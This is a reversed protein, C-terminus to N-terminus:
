KRLEAPLLRTTLETGQLNLRLSDALIEVVTAGDVEAGVTVHQGNVIAVRRKQGMFIATVTFTAVRALVAPRVTYPRTPDRLLETADAQIAGFLLVSSVIFISCRSRM